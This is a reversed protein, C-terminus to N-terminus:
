LSRREIEEMKRGLESVDIVGAELLLQATAAIWKEYYRLNEYLGPGLGERARRIQDLNFLGRAELLCVLADARKEWAALERESRDVEGAPLGGLDHPQVSFKKELM